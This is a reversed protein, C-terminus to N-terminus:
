ALRRARCGMLPRSKRGGALPVIQKYSESIRPAQTSVRWRSDLVSDAEGVSGTARM